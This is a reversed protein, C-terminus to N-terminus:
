NTFRLSSKYLTFIFEICYGCLASKASLCKKLPLTSCACEEFWSRSFSLSTDGQPYDIYIHSKCLLNIVLCILQGLGLIKVEFYKRCTNVFIEFDIFIIKFPYFLPVVFEFMLQSVPTHHM